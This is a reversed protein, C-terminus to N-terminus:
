EEGDKPYVTEILNFLDQEKTEEDDDDDDSTKEEEKEVKEDVDIEKFNVSPLIMDDEDESEEEVPEEVKEEEKVKDKRSKRSLKEEKEETEPVTEKAEEPEEKEEVKEIEEDIKGYAKKRVDDISMEEQNNLAIEVTKKDDTIHNGNEDLLGYVPSINPSPKFRRVEEKRKRSGQYLLPQEIVPEPIVPEEKPPFLFDDDTLEPITFEQKEVRTQRQERQIEEKKPLDDFDNEFNYNYDDEELISTAKIDPEEYVPEEIEKKHKKEKKLDKKEEKVVEEDFLFNKMKSLKNKLGM